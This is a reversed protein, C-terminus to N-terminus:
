SGQKKRVPCSNNTSLLKSEDTSEEVQLSIKVPSAKIDAAVQELIDKSMDVVRHYIIDNSLSVQQLKKAAEKGLVIDVM